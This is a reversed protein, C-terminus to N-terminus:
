KRPGGRLRAEVEPDAAVEGRSLLGVRAQAVRKELHRQAKRLRLATWVTTGVLVSSLALLWPWWSVVFLPPLTAGLAFLQLRLAITWRSVRPYPGRFVLTM